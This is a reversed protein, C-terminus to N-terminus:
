PGGLLRLFQLREFIHGVTRCEAAQRLPLIVVAAVADLPLSPREKPPYLAAFVGGAEPVFFQHVRQADDVQILHPFAFILKQPPGSIFRYRGLNFDNEFPGEHCILYWLRTFHALCLPSVYLPELRPGVRSVDEEGLCMGNDLPIFRPRTKSPESGSGDGHGGHGDQGSDGRGQYKLPALLQPPQDAQHFVFLLQM